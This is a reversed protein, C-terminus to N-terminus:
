NFAFLSVFLPLSLSFSFVIVYLGMLFPTPPHSPGVLPGAIFAMIVMLVRDGFSITDMGAAALRANWATQGQFDLLVSVNFPTSVRGDHGLM